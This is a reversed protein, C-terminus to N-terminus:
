AVATNMDNAGLNREMGEQHSALVLPSCIFDSAKKWGDKQALIIYWLIIGHLGMDMGQWTGTSSARKNQEAGADRVPGLIVAAGGFLLSGLCALKRKKRSEKFNHALYPFSQM